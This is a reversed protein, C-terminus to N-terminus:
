EYVKEKRFVIISVLLFIISIIVLVSISYIMESLSKGDMLAVYCNNIWKNLTLKSIFSNKNMDGYAGSAFTMMIIIVSMVGGAIKSSKFISAILLAFSSAVFVAILSVVGLNIISSAWAIKFISGCVCIIMFTIFFIIISNSIFIASVISYRKIPAVFLRLLTKEEREETVMAGAVVGAILIFQVLIGIAFYQMNSNSSKSLIKTSSFISQVPIITKSADKIIKDTIYIQFIPIISLYLLIGINNTMNKLNKGVITWM